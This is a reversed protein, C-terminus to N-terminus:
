GNVRLWTPQQTILPKMEILGTLAGSTALVPSLVCGPGAAVVCGVLAAICQEGGGRPTTLNSDGYTVCALRDTHSEPRLVQGAARQRWGPGASRSQATRGSSSRPKLRQASSWTEASTSIESVPQREPLPEKIQCVASHAHMLLPPFYNLVNLMKCNQPLDVTRLYKWKM